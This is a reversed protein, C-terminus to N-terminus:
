EECLGKNCFGVECMSCCGCAALLNQDRIPFRRNFFNFTLKKKTFSPKKYIKNKKM